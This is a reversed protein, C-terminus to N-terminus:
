DVGSEMAASDLVSEDAVVPGGAASNATIQEAGGEDLGASELEGFLYTRGLLGGPKAAYQELKSRSDAIDLNRM